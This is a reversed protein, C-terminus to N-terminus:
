LRLRRERERTVSEDESSDSWSTGSGSDSPSSSLARRPFGPSTTTPWLFRRVSVRSAMASSSLSALASSANQIPSDAAGTAAAPGERWGTRRTTLFLTVERARDRVREGDDDGGGAGYM